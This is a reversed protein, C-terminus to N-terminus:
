ANVARLLIEAAESVADRAQKFPSMLETLKGKESIKHWAQEYPELTSPGMSSVWPLLQEGSIGLLRGVGFQHYPADNVSDADRAHNFARVQQRLEHDVEAAISSFHACRKQLEIAADLIPSQKPLTERWFTLPADKLAQLASTAPIPVAAHASEFNVVDRQALATRLQNLKLSLERSHTQALARREAGKQYRLVVIGVVVGAVIGCIVSYIAGSWLAPWFAAWFATAESTGTEPIGWM